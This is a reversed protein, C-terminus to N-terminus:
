KEIGRNANLEKLVLTPNMLKAKGKSQLNNNM